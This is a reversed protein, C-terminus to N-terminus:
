LMKKLREINREIIVKDSHSRTIWLAKQYHDLAKTNDVGTYLNGL